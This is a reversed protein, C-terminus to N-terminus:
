IQPRNPSLGSYTNKAFEVIAYDLWRHTGLPTKNQSIYGLHGGGHTIQIDVHESMKQNKFYAVDVFPDDDSTLILTPVQIRDLKQYTSCKEYYDHANEYGALKSTYVDDFDRIKMFRSIKRVVAPDSLLNKKALKKVTARLSFVFNKEYIRNLGLSLMDSTSGINLPPNVALAFDPFYEQINTKNEKFCVEPESLLRLVANASLSFGYLIIKYGPFKKRIAYVVEGIDDGSGSNYPKTALGFGKGCNRHNMMVVHHGLQQLHYAGRVIYKSQSDGSLGHCLISVINIKGPLYENVLTDGDPLQVKFEQAQTEKSPLGPFLDAIITQLHSNSLWRHPVFETLKVKM